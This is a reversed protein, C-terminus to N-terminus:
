SAWTIANAAAFRSIIAVSEPASVVCGYSSNRRTVFDAAAGDCCGAVEFLVSAPVRHPQAPRTLYRPRVCALRGSRGM